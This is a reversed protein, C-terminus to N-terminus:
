RRPWLSHMGEGDSPPRVLLVTDEGESLLAALVVLMYAKSGDSLSVKVLTLNIGEGESPSAVM